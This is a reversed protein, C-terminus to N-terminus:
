AKNTVKKQKFNRAERPDNKAKKSHVLSAYEELAVGRKININNIDIDGEDPNILKEIILNVHGAFYKVTQECVDSNSFTVHKQIYNIKQKLKKTDSPNYSPDMILLYSNVLDIFGACDYCNDLKDHYLDLKGLPTDYYLKRAVNNHYYCQDEYTRNDYQIIPADKKVILRTESSTPGPYLQIYIKGEPYETKGDRWPLRFKFMSLEPNMIKWWNMQMKMNKEVTEDTAPETRIDTIFTLYLNEKLARDRWYEADEDTFFQRHTKINKNEKLKEYFKNPDYLEFNSDPFMTQLFKTHIGPAAGAYVIYLKRDDKEEQKQKYV